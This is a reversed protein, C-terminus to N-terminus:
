AAQLERRDGAGEYRAGGDPLVRDPVQHLDECVAQGLPLGALRLQQLLAGGSRHRRRLRRPVQPARQHEAPFSSPLSFLPHTISFSVWKGWFWGCVIVKFKTAICTIARKNQIQKSALKKMDGCKFFVALRDAPVGAIFENELSVQM